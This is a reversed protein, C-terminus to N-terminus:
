VRTVQACASGGGGGATAGGRVLAIFLAIAADKRVDREATTGSVDALLADVLASVRASVDANFHRCLGRLFDSACRRRTDSDSGEIDRRLFEVPNDDLLEM